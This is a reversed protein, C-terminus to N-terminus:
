RCKVLSCWKNGPVPFNKTRSDYTIVLEMETCLRHNTLVLQQYITCSISVQRKKRGKEYSVFFFDLIFRISSDDDGCMIYYSFWIFAHIIHGTNIMVEYKSNKSIFPYSEVHLSNRWKSKPFTDNDYLFNREVFYELILRSCFNSWTEIILSSSHIFGITARLDVKCKGTSIVEQFYDWSRDKKFRYWFFWGKFRRRSFRNGLIAIM